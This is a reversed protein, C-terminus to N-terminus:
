YINTASLEEFASDDLTAIADFSELTLLVRPKVRKAVEVPEGCVFAAMSTLIGHGKPTVEPLKIRCDQLRTVLRLVNLGPRHIPPPKLRPSTERSSDARRKLGDGLIAFHRPMNTLGSVETLTKVPIGHLGFEKQMLGVYLFVCFTGLSIGHLEQVIKGLAPLICKKVDDASPKFEPHDRWSSAFLRFLDAGKSSLFVRGELERRILLEPGGHGISGTSLLEIHHLAQTYSQDGKNAVEEYSLGEGVDWAAVVLFSRLSGVTMRTYAPRIANCGECFSKFRPDRYGPSEGPSFNFLLPSDLELVTV